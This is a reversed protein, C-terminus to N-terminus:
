YQTSRVKREAAEALCLGALIEPFTQEQKVGKTLAEEFADVMGYFKLEKLLLLLDTRQM